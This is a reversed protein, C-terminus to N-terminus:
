DRDMDSRLGPSCVPGTGGLSLWAQSHHGWGLCPGVGHIRLAPFHRSNADRTVGTRPIPLIPNRHFPSHHPLSQLIHDTLSSHHHHLPDPLLPRWVGPKPCSLTGPLPRLHGPHSSFTVPSPAPHSGQLIECEPAPHSGQFIGCGLAAATLAVSGEWTNHPQLWMGGPIQALFSGQCPSNINRSWLSSVGFPEEREPRLKGAGAASGPSGQSSAGLRAGPIGSPNVRLSRRRSKLPTKPPFKENGGRNEGQLQQPLPSPCGANRGPDRGQGRKGGPVAPKSFVPFGRIGSAALGWPIRRLIQPKRRLDGREKPNLPRGLFLLMGGFCNREWPILFRPFSIGFNWEPSDPGRSGCGSHDQSHDRYRLLSGSMGPTIGVDRSHDRSHDQSHDRCGLQSGPDRSHDQCGRLWGSRGPTIGPTSGCGLTEGEQEARPINWPKTRAFGRPSPPFSKQPFEKSESSKSPFSMKPALERPCRPPPHPPLTGTHGRGRFEKQEM